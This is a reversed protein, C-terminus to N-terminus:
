DPVGLKRRVEPDDTIYFVPEMRRHEVIETVGNAILIEYMPYPIRGTGAHPQLTQPEDDQVTAVVSDLTLGGSRLTITATRGVPGMWYYMHVSFDSRKAGDRVVFWRPIRSEPALDFDSEICGRTPSCAAVLVLVVVVAKLRHRGLRKADSFDM